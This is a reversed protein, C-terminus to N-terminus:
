ISPDSLSPINELYVDYNEGKESFIKITEGIRKRDIMKVTSTSANLETNAGVYERYVYYLLGTVIILLVFFTLVIGHWYFVVRYSSKPLNGHKGEGKKIKINKLFSLNM